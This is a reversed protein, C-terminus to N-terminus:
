VIAVDDNWRPPAYLVIQCREERPLPDLAAACEESELEGAWVILLGQPTVKYAVWQGGFFHQLKINEEAEARHRARRIGRTRFYDEMERKVGPPLEMDKLYRWKSRDVPQPVSETSM